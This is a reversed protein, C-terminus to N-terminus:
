RDVELEKLIAYIADRLDYVDTALKLDLMRKQILAQRTTKPKPQSPLSPLGCDAVSDRTYLTM